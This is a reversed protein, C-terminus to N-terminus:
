GGISLTLRAEAPLSEPAFYAGIRELIPTSVNLDPDAGPLQTTTVAIAIRRGPLYGTAGAYGSFSPNQILWSNISFLGLGYWNRTNWEPLARAAIADSM